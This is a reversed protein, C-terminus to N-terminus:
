RYQELTESIQRSIAKCLGILREQHTGDHALDSLLPRLFEPVTPDVDATTHRQLVHTLRRSSLAIPRLSPQLLARTSYSHVFRISNM